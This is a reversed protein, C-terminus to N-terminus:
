GVARRTRHEAAVSRAQEIKSRPSPGSDSLLEHLSAIVRGIGAEYTFREAVSQRQDGQFQVRLKPDAAFRAIARRLTAPDDFSTLDFHPLVQDGPIVLGMDRWALVAEVPDDQDSSAIAPRLADALTNLQARMPEALARQAAALTQAAPAHALLFDILDRAATDAPHRRILYFGGAVLGDLLRQHLCHYPVIQLNFRSARTVRGLALGYQIPGRANAAFEPHKDWNNGYIAFSLSMERAADRAWLLAQQRYLADNLPHFLWAALADFEAVGIPAALDRQVTRLLALLEYYTPVSNGAAYVDILRRAAEALLARGQPSGEYAAVRHAVITAPVHSANSVFVLDDSRTDHDFDQRMPPRTLKTLAICQRRPYSFTSSYMAGADTLV